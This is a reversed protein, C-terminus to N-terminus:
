DSHDYMSLAHFDVADDDHLNHHITRQGVLSPERINGTTEPGQLGLDEIDLISWSHEKRRIKVHIASVARQLLLHFWGIYFFSSIGWTRSCQYIVCVVAVVIPVNPCQQEDNM